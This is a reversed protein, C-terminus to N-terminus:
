FVLVEPWSGAARAFRSFHGPNSPMLKNGRLTAEPLSTIGQTKRTAATGSRRLRPTWFACLNQDLTWKCKISILTLDMEESAMDLGVVESAMDPLGKDEGGGSGRGVMRALVDSSSAAAM